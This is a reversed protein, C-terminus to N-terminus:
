SFLVQSLYALGVGLLYGGHGKHSGEAGEPNQVELGQTDMSGPLRDVKYPFALVSILNVAM